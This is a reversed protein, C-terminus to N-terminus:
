EPVHKVKLMGRWGFSLAASAASASPPRETKALAKRIAAEDAVTDARASTTSPTSM